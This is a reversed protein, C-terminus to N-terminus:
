KLQQNLAKFKSILENMAGQQKKIARPRIVFWNLAIWALTAGYALVASWLPMLLVYELIAMCVGITIFAFYLSMVTSQMFVQKEKLVLLQQLYDSNSRGYDARMLLPILQNYVFLFSLMGLLLLVIGVNTIWSEPKQICWVDVIIASTILLAANAVAIRALNKLKYRRAKEFLERSDPVQADQRNWLEKLDIEKSM